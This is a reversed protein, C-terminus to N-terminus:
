ILGMDPVNRSKLFEKTVVRTNGRLLKIRYKKSDTDTTNIYVLKVIENHGEKNYILYDGM